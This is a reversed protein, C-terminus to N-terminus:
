QIDVSQTAGHKLASMKQLFESRPSRLQHGSALRQKHSVMDAIRHAQVNAKHSLRAAGLAARHIFYRTVLLTIPWVQTSVVQVRGHLSTKMQIARENIRQRWAHAFVQERKMEWYKVAFLGIIGVGSLIFLTTAFIFM